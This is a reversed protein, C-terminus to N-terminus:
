GCGRGYGAVVYVNFGADLVRLLFVGSRPPPEALTANVSGSDNGLGAACGALDWRMMVTTGATVAVGPLAAESLVTVAGDTTDVIELAADDTGSVSHVACGRGTVYPSRQADVYLEVAHRAGSANAGISVYGAVTISDLDLPTDLYVLTETGGPIVLQGNGPSVDEGESLWHPSLTGAAFSDFLVLCHGGVDPDPDCLDGVGDGDRDSRGGIETDPILVCLDTANPVGDGDFDGTPDNVVRDYTVPVYLKDLDFVDHCGVTVLAQVVVVFRLM